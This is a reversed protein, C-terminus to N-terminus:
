QSIAAKIEYKIILDWIVNAINCKLLLISFVTSHELYKDPRTNQCIYHEKSWHNGFKKSGPSGQWTWIKVLTGTDFKFLHVKYFLVKPLPSLRHGFVWFQECVFFHFIIGKPSLKTLLFPFIHNIKLLERGGWGRLSLGWEGSLRPECM